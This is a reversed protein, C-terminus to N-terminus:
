ILEKIRQALESELSQQKQQAAAERQTEAETQFRQITDIEISELASIAAKAGEIEDCLKIANTLYNELNTSDLCEKTKELTQLKQIFEDKAKRIEELQM